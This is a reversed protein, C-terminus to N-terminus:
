ADMWYSWSKVKSLGYRKLYAKLRKEFKTRECKLAELIIDKDADSCPRLDKYSSANEQASWITLRRYKWVNLPERESCYSERYLYIDGIANEDNMQKIQEDIYRLNANMFYEESTSAHHAMRNAEDYSDNDYASDHYGFCFSTEISPKEFVLLGGNSLKCIGSAEKKFYNLMDDANGAKRMETIYEDMLDGGSTPVTANEVKGCKLLEKVKDEVKKSFIWGAGCSLKANYRGGLEKLQKKIERTDGVVAIAKESYDIIQYKSNSTEQEEKWANIVDNFDNECLWDGCNLGDPFYQYDQIMFEPDREGKHISKCKKLFEDYSAFQTLDVWEGKLNGENYKKWTGVYVQPNTNEKM